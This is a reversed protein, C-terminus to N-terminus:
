PSIPSRSSLAARRIQEQHDADTVADLLPTVRDALGDGAARVDNMFAGIRAPLAQARSLAYQTAPTAIANVVSAVGGLAPSFRAAISLLQALLWLGALGGGIWLAKRVLDALRENERAYERVQAEARATAAASAALKDSLDAMREADSSRQAEAKQRIAANDSLLASVLDRWSSLDGAKPAGVAQDLLATAEAAFDTAVTTARSPAAAALAMASKHAAEQAGQIVQARVQAEKAEKKQVTELATDSVRWGSPLMCGVLGTLVWLVLATIIVGAVTRYYWGFAKPSM